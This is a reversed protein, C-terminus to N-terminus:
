ATVEEARACYYCQEPYHGAGSYYHAEWTSSLERTKAILEDEEIDYWGEHLDYRVDLEEMAQELHELSLKNDEAFVKVQATEAEDKLNM